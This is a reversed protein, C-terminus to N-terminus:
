ARRINLASCDKRKANWAVGGVSLLGADPGHSSPLGDDLLLGITEGGVLVLRFVLFAQPASFAM